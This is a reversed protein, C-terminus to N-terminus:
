KKFGISLYLNAKNSNVIAQVIRWPIVCEIDANQRGIVYNETYEISTFIRKEGTIFIITDLM